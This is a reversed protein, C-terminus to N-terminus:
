KVKTTTKETNKGVLPPKEHTDEVLHEKILFERGDPIFRTIFTVILAIGYFDYGILMGISSGLWLGAATTLNRVDGKSVFILGAGLFGLGSVIQAAIRSKSFPDVTNSLFSFIMAGLIVYTFTSVGANKGKAAREQGIVFWAILALFIKILFQVELSDTIWWLFHGLYDM